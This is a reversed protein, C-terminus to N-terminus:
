LLLDASACCWDVALEMSSSACYFTTALHVIGRRIAYRVLGATDHIDLKTKLRSRYSEATRVTVSLVEAIDKSTRGEAVLQLVERERLTLPDRGITNGTLYAGLVVASVQPSLYTGGAAVESIANILEDAARTKPVYGRVGAQLAAAIQREEAHVTLMVIGTDPAVALIERATDVGNMKPMCIDLVAVDFRVARALKIAEHGDAAEAVVDFGNHELLSRLGQRVVLHDDALM